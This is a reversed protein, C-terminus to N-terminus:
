QCPPRFLPLFKPSRQVYIIGDYELHPRLQDIGSAYVRHELRTGDRTDLLMASANQTGLIPLLADELSDPQRQVPGCTGYDVETVFANLAFSAYKEGFADALHSGMPVEGTVLRARAVHSNAAWVFTKANPANMGRM